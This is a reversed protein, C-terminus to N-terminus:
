FLEDLRYYNKGSGASLAITVMKNAVQHGTIPRYKRLFPLKCLIPLIRNGLEEGLRYTDREGKLLSPQLISIREFPLLSVADELEGKMKLYASKSNANAGSASVLVYHGVDNDLAIKAVQYQYDLDVKRQASISGAQKLTTGLCSFLVDCNLVSLDNELADFDVVQNTVKESVYEVPRRTVAVISEVNENQVLCEVLHKGVLGTAGLVMATKM